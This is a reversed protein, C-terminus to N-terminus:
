FGFIGTAVYHKIVDYGSAVPGIPLNWTEKNDKDMNSLWDYIVEFSYVEGFAKYCKGNETSQSRVLVTQVDNDFADEVVRMVMDYMYDKGWDDEYIVCDLMEKSAIENVFIRM